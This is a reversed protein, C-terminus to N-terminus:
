DSSGGSDSSSSGGDYSSSCDGGTNRSSYNNNDVTLATAALVLVPSDLVHNGPYAEHHDRVRSSSPLPIGTRPQTPVRSHVHNNGIIPSQSNSFGAQPSAHEPFSIPTIGQLGIGFPEIPPPNMGHHARLYEKRHLYESPDLGQRTAVLSRHAKNRKTEEEEEQKRKAELARMYKLAKSTNYVASLAIILMGTSILAIAGLLVEAFTLNDM